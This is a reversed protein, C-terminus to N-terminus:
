IEKKKKKKRADTSLYLVPGNRGEMCEDEEEDVVGGTNRRFEVAVRAVGWVPHGTPPRWRPLGDRRADGVFLDVVEHRLQFSNKRLLKCRSSSPRLWLRVDAASFCCRDNPAQQHSVIWTLNNM